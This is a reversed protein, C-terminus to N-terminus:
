RAAGGPRGHRASPPPGRHAGRREWRRPLGVATVERRPRGAVLHRGQRPRDPLRAPRDVRLLHGPHRAPSPHVRRRRRQDVVIRPGGGLPQALLHRGPRRRRLRGRHAPLLREGAPGAPDQHLAPHHLPPVPDLPQGPGLRALVLHHRRARHEHLPRRHAHLERGREAHVVHHRHLVAPRTRRRGGGSGPGAATVASCPMGRHSRRVAPPAVSRLHQSRVYSGGGRAPSQSTAGATSPARRCWSPVAILHGRAEGHLDGPRPAKRVWQIRHHVVQEVRVGVDGRVLVHAM